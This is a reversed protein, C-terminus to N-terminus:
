SISSTLLAWAGPPQCLRAGLESVLGHLEDVFGFQFGMGAVAPATAGAEPALLEHGEAPRVTAIAAVAAANVQTRRRPDVGERVKTDLAGELAPRARGPRAVVAKTRRTAIKVDGHGDAGDDAIGLGTLLEAIEHVFAVRQEDS